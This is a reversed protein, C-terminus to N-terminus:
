ALAPGPSITDPCKILCSWHIIAMSTQSPSPPESGRASRAQAQPSLGHIYMGLVDPVCMYACMYDRM